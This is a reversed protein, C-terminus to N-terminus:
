EVCGRLVGPQIQHGHSSLPIQQPLQAQPPSSGQLSDGMTMVFTGPPPPFWAPPADAPPPPLQAAQIAEELGKKLLQFLISAEKPLADKGTGNVGMESKLGALARVAVERYTDKLAKAEEPKLGVVNPSIDWNFRKLKVNLLLMDKVCQHITAQDPPIRALAAVLSDRLVLATNAKYLRKQDAYNAPKEPKKAPAEFEQPQARFEVYSEGDKSAVIKFTNTGGIPTARAHEIQNPLFALSQLSEPSKTFLKM